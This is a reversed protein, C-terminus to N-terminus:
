AAKSFAPTGSRTMGAAKGLEDDSLPGQLQAERFCGIALSQLRGMVPMRTGSNTAVFRGSPDKAPGRLTLASRFRVHSYEDPPSALVSPGITPVHHRHVGRVNAVNQMSSTRGLWSPRRKRIKFGAASQASDLEKANGARRGM